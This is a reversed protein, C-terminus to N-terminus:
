RDYHGDTGRYCHRHQQRSRLYLDSAITTINYCASSFPFDFDIPFYLTLCGM